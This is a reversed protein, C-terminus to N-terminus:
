VREGGFASVLGAVLADNTLHDDANSSWGSALNEEVEVGSTGTLLAREGPQAPFSSGSISREDAGRRLSVGRRRGADEADALAFAPRPDM